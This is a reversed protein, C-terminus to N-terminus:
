EFPGKDKGYFRDVREQETQDMNQGIVNGLGAGVVVGIPGALAGAAGGVVTGAATSNGATEAELERNSYTDVHGNPCELSLTQPYDSRRERIDDLYIRESCIHCQTFVRM